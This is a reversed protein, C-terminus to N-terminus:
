IKYADYNVYGLNESIDRYKDIKAIKNSIESDIFRPKFGFDSYQNIYEICALVDILEKRLQERNTIGQYDSDLGFQMIKSCVQSVEACEESLKLIAHQFLNM